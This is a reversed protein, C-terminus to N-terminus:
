EMVRHYLEAKILHTKEKKETQKSAAGTFAVAPFESNRFPLVVPEMVKVQVHGASESLFPGIVEKLYVMFLVLGVGTLLVSNTLTDADVSFWVNSNLLSSSCAAYMMEMAVHVPGDKHLGCSDMEASVKCAPLIM